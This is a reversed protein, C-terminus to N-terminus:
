GREKSRRRGERGKNWGWRNKGVNLKFYGRMKQERDERRVKREKRGEKEAGGERVRWNERENESKWPIMKLKQHNRHSKLTNIRPGKMVESKRDLWLLPFSHSFDTLYQLSWTPPSLYFLMLARHSLSGRFILPSFPIDCLVVTKLRKSIKRRLSSSEERKLVTEGNGTDWQAM